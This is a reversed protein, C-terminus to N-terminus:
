RCRSRCRTASWRWDRSISDFPACRVPPFAYVLFGGDVYEGQRGGRIVTKREGTKLDLVAVQDKEPQSPSSVITFLVARGDPLVSPFLHDVEGQAQDPKTLVTPEGGGSPVSLLGTAGDSTAFVITGNPGWSAGRAFGPLRACRSRPGAGAIWVKKLSSRM